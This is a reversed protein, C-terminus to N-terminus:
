LEWPSELIMLLEELLSPSLEALQKETPFRVERSEEPLLIGLPTNYAKETRGTWRLRCRCNPHVVARIANVAQHTHYMFVYPVVDGRFM